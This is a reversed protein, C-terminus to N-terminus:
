YVSRGMTATKAAERSLKFVAAVLADLRESAAVIATVDPLRVAVDPPSTVSTVRVDTHRVRTLNECLYPAISDALYLYGINDVTLIDGLLERKIGLAMISGLFDRHSLADAFKPAIPTMALWSAEETPEYGFAEKDGFLAYKREAAPFGGSLTYTGIKGQEFLLRLGAQEALTLFQSATYYGGESARRSLERMRSEFLKTDEM